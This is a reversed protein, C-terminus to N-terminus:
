SRYGGSGLPSRWPRVASLAAPRRAPRWSSKGAAQSRWGPVELCLLPWCWPPIRPKRSLAPHLAHTGRIPKGLRPSWQEWRRNVELFTIM